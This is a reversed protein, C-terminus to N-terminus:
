RGAPARPSPGDAAHRRRHRTDRAHRHRRAAAAATILPLMSELLVVRYLTGVGTGSVQLLAFPRKREVLGGGVAV